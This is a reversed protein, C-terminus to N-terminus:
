HLKTEAAAWSSGYLQQETRGALVRKPPVGDPNPNGGERDRFNVRDNAIDNIGVMAPGM